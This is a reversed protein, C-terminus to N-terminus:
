SRVPWEVGPCEALALPNQLGDIQVALTISGCTWRLVRKADDRRDPDPPTVRISLAAVRPDIQMEGSTKGRKGGYSVPIGPSGHMEGMSCVFLFAIGFAERWLCAVTRNQIPSNGAHHYPPITIYQM